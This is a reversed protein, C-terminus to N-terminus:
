EGVKFSSSRLRELRQVFIRSGWFRIADWSVRFVFVPNTVLYRPGMRAPEQLFRYFWELGCRQMWRPARKVCGAVIDFSGGVGQCVPAELLDLAADAWLEKKPTSMAIFLLDADSDNIRRIVDGNKSESFYGDQTGAVQLGPYRRKFESATKEVIAPQGGLLFIRFGERAARAVLREMLDTGNVRGPLPRGYLWSAWVVPVGDALALGAREITDRLAPDHRYKVVKAANIFVVHTKIGLRIRCCIEEEAQALSLCDM